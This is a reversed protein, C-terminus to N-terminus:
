DNRSDEQETGCATCKYRRNHGLFGHITHPTKMNCRLCKLNIYIAEMGQKSNINM